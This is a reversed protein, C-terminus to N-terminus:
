CPDRMITVETLNVLGSVEALILEDKNGGVMGTSQSWFCDLNAPRITAMVLLDRQSEPDVSAGHFKNYICEDCKFPVMM